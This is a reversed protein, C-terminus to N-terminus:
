LKEYEARVSSYQFDDNTPQSMNVWRKKSGDAHMHLTHEGNAFLLKTKFGALGLQYYAEALIEKNSDDITVEQSPSIQLANDKDIILWWCHNKDKTLKYHISRFIFDQNDTSDFHNEKM